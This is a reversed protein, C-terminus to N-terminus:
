PTLKLKRAKAALKVAEFIHEQKLHYLVVFYDRLIPGETLKHPKVAEVLAHTVDGMDRKLQNYDTENHYFVDDLLNPVDKTAALMDPSGAKYHVDQDWASPGCLVKTGKSRHWILNKLQEETLSAFAEALINTYEETKKSM